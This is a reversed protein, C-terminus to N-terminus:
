QGYQQKRIVETRYILALTLGALRYIAQPHDFWLNRFTNFPEDSSLGFLELFLPEGLIELTPLSTTLIPAPKAITEIRWRAGILSTAEDVVPARMALIESFDTAPEIEIFFADETLMRGTNELLLLIPPPPGVASSFQVNLNTDALKVRQSLGGSLQLPATTTTLRSDILTIAVNASSTSALTNARLASIEPAKIEISYERIAKGRVNDASLGGIIFLRGPLDKQAKYAQIQNQITYFFNPNEPWYTARPDLNYVYPALETTHLMHLLERVRTNLFVRDPETGFLATRLTRLYSPLVVPRYDAPIIEEGVYQRQSTDPLVNMLLNRAHNIM